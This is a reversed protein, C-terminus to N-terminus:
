SATTAVDGTPCVSFRATGSVTSSAYGPRPGTKSSRVGVVSSAVISGDSCACSRFVAGTRSRSSIWGHLGVAPDRFPLWPLALRRLLTTRRRRRVARQRDTRGGSRRCCRCGCQSGSRPLTRPVYPRARLHCRPGRLQKPVPLGVSRWESAQVSLHHSRPM